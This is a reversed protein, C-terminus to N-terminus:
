SVIDDLDKKIKDIDRETLYSKTIVERALQRKTEEDHKPIRPVYFLCNCFSNYYQKLTKM